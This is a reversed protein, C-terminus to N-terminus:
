RRFFHVLQGAPIEQFDGRASESRRSNNTFSVDDRLLGGWPPPRRRARHQAHDHVAALTFPLDLIAERQRLEQAILQMQGTRLDAAIPALAACARHQEVARRDIRATIERHPRGAARDLRDFAKGGAFAQMRELLGKDIM